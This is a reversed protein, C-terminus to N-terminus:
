EKALIIMESMKKIIDAFAMKLNIYDSPNYINKKYTYGANIIIKDEEKKVVYNIKILPNDTSQTEPIFEIKYGKPIEIQSIYNQGRVFMLDVHLRRESQKFPNDSISLNSFPHIFLKEPTGELPIEYDFTFHFPRNLKDNNDTVKIGNTVDINNREKLYKTLNEEKGLYVSRYNYANYGQGIFRSNIQAKNEEPIIKITFEKQDLSIGKQNISVWEEVKPKVLLGEVNICRIPIDSFYLLPETADIFYVKNDIVVM